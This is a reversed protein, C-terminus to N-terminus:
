ERLAKMNQVSEDRNENSTTVLLKLETPFYSFALLHSSHSPPASSNKAVNEAAEFAELDGECSM